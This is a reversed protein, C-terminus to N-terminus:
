HRKYARYTRIAIDEWNYKCMDYKHVQPERQLKTNLSERMHDIEGTRFYYSDPLKVEKNPEIDSALIDCGYSMAELLSIPLGEYNSPLVFLRSHTYLQQLKDGKIFGTLVVGQDKALKKLGLSYDSEHDADGAIVLKYEHALDSDKYAHILSDFGKEPVFRGLTFICKDKEVGITELYDTNESKVATPVGNPILLYNTRGYKKAIQQGIGESIVIVKNAFKVGSWEGAQLFLKALKGWKDREYDPGHHTMVVRLGLLRALPTLLNPGVAHIHLADPRKIAAYLVCLTTHVIAEFRKSHPSYLTKLKLGKYEKVNNEPTVYVSRRLITIEDNPHRRKIIPYLEECHTEVGGLIGPIGRTGIVFIKM